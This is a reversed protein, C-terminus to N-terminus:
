VIWGLERAKAVTAQYASAIISHDKTPRRRLLTLHPRHGNLLAEARTAPEMVVIIDGDIEVHLDIDSM